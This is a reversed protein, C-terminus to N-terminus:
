HLEHTKILHLSLPSLSPAPRRHFAIYVGKWSELPGYIEIRNKDIKQLYIKITGHVSVLMKGVGLRKGHVLESHKRVKM